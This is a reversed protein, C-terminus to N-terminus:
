WFLVPALFISIYSNIFMDLFIKKIHYYHFLIVHNIYKGSFIFMFPLVEGKMAIISLMM